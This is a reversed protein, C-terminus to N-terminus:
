QHDVNQLARLLAGVFFSHKYTHSLANKVPIAFLPLTLTVATLTWVWGFITLGSNVVVRYKLTSKHTSNSRASHWIHERHVHLIGRATFIGLVVVSALEMTSPRREFIFFLSSLALVVTAPEVLWQFSSATSPTPEAGLTSSSSVGAAAAVARRRSRLNHAPSSSSSSSSSSSAVKDSLNAGSSGSKSLGKGPFLFERVAIEVLVLAGHLLFFSGMLAADTPGTALLSPVCHLAASGTFCAIVAFLRPAGLRRLPVYFSDSLVKQVIPNWRTGWFSSLSTALLPHRHRLPRPLESHTFVDLFIISNNYNWDMLLLVWVGSLIDRFYDRHLLNSSPLFEFILFMICDISLMLVMWYVLRKWSPLRPSVTGHSVIRSHANFFWTRVSAVYFSDSELHPTQDALRGTTYEQQQIIAMVRSHLSLGAVFWYLGLLFRVAPFPLFVPLIVLVFATMETFALAAIQAVRTKSKADILLYTSFLGLMVAATVSIGGGSDFFFLRLLRLIASHSPLQAVLESVLRQLVTM